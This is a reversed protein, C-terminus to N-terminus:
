RRPCRFPQDVAARATYLVAVSEGGSLTLEPYDYPLLHTFLHHCGKLALIANQHYFGKNACWFRYGHHSPNVLYCVMGDWLCFPGYPPGTVGFGSSGFGQHQGV